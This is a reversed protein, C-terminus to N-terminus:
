HSLQLLKEAYPRPGAVGERTASGGKCVDYSTLLDNYENYYNKATVNLWFLPTDFIENKLLFTDNYDGNLLGGCGEEGIENMLSRVFGAGKQAFSQEFDELGSFENNSIKAIAGSLSQGSHILSLLSDLGQAISTAELSKGGGLYGLYMVALYGTNYRSQFSDATLPHTQSLIKKIDEESTGSTIGFGNHMRIYDAAGCVAEATGEIFWFPFVDNHQNLNIDIGASGCTLTEFMFAHMMEHTVTTELDRRWLDTLKNAKWEFPSYDIILDYKVNMSKYPEENGYKYGMKFLAKESNGTTNLVLNLGIVQNRLHGFTQPFRHLLAHTAQPVIEDRLVKMLHLVHDPNAHSRLVQELGETSTEIKLNKYYWYDELLAETASEGVFPDLSPTAPIADQSHHDETGLSEPHINQAPTKGDGLQACALLLLSVLVLVSFVIKRSVKVKM